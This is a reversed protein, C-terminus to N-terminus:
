FHRRSPAFLPPADERQLHAHTVLLAHFVGFAGRLDAVCAEEVDPERTKGIRVVVAKVVPEGLREEVARAYAAAQLAHAPQIANRGALVALANATCLQLPMHHPTNAPRPGCMSM